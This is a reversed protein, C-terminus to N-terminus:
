VCHDRFAIGDIMVVRLALEDFPRSFTETLRKQTLAV